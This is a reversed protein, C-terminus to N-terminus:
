YRKYCDVALLEWFWILTIAELLRSFSYMHVLKSFKEFSLHVLQFNDVYHDLESTRVIDYSPFRDETVKAFTNQYSGTTTDFCVIRVMQYSSNKEKSIEKMEFEGESKLTSHVSINRM